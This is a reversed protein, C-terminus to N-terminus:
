NVEGQLTRFGKEEIYPVATPACGSRVSAPPRFGATKMGLTDFVKTRVFAEYHCQLSLGEEKGSSAASCAPLLSSKDVLSHERVLFGVVYMLTIMSLDSYQYM